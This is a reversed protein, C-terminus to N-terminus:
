ASSTPSACSKRPPLLEATCFFISACIRSAASAISKSRAAISRSRSRAAVKMWPLWAILASPSPLASIKAIAQLPPCTAMWAKKMRPPWFQPWRAKKGVCVSPSLSSSTM